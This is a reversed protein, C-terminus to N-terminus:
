RFSLVIFTEDLDLYIEIKSFLRFERIAEVQVMKDNGIYIYREVNNSKQCGLCGQISM